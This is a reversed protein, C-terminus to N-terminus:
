KRMILASVNEEARLKEAIGEAEERTVYNGVLVRYWDGKEPVNVFKSIAPYGDQILQDKLAEAREEQRFSGVHLSYIGEPTAKPPELAKKADALAMEAPTAGSLRPDTPESVPEAESLKAEAGPTESSVASKEGHPLDITASPSMEQETEFAVTEEGSEPRPPKDVAGAELAAVGAGAEGSEEMAPKEVETKTETAPPKKLAATEKMASKDSRPALAYFYYGAGVLVLILIVFLGVSPSKRDGRPPEQEVPIEPPVPPREPEPEGAAPEFTPEVGQEEDLEKAGDSPEIDDVGGGGLEEERVGPERKKLDEELRLADEMPFEEADGDDPVPPTKMIGSAVEDVEM